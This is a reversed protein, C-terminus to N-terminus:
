MTGVMFGSPRSFKRFVPPGDREPIALPVGVQVAPVDLVARVVQIAVALDPLHALV